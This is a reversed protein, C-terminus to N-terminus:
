VEGERIVSRWVRRSVFSRYGGVREDTRTLTTCGPMETHWEVTMPYEARPAAPYHRICDEMDTYPPEACELVPRSPVCSKRGLYLCWQPAELAAVLRDHWAASTEAVVTYSADERYERRSIITNGGSKPKGSANLLPDGTVTQFDAAGSGLRDSRVALSLSASLEALRPDDRELGLACGLLGVIGSKTPLIGSDRYDWKSGEGWSQLAGELRLVLLKRQEDM